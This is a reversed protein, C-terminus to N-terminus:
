PVEALTVIINLEPLHHKMEKLPSSVEIHSGNKRGGLRAALVGVFEEVVSYRAKAEDVGDKEDFQSTQGTVEKVWYIPM